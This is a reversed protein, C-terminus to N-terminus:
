LEIINNRITYVFCQVLPSIFAKSRYLQCDLSFYVCRVAYIHVSYFYPLLKGPPETSFSDVQLTSTLEIWLDSLDGPSPLPLKSWYEQRPFGMSLLAQRAVTWPTM